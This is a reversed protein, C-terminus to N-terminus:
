GSESASVLQRLVGFQDNIIKVEREKSFAFRVFSIAVMGMYGAPESSPMNAM